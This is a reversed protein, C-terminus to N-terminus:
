VLPIPLDSGYLPLFYVELMLVKVKLKRDASSLHQRALVTPEGRKGHQLGLNCYSVNEPKGKGLTEPERVKWFYLIPKQVVGPGTQARGGGGSCESRRLRPGASPLVSCKCLSM